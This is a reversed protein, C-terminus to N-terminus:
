MKILLKQFMEASEIIRIGYIGYYAGRRNNLFMENKTSILPRRKNWFKIFFFKFLTNSSMWQFFQASRQQFWRKTQWKNEVM